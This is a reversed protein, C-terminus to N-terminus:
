ISSKCWFLPRISVMMRTMASMASWVVSRAKVGGDFGRARTFEACAEVNNGLFHTVEGATRLGRQCVRLGNDIFDTALGCICAKGGVTQRSSAV